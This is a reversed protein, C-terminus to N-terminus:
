VKNLMIFQITPQSCPRVPVLFRAIERHGKVRGFDGKEV